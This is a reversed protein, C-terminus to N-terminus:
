TPPSIRDPARSTEVWQELVALADFHGPRPRRHLAAHGAGHVPPLLRVPRRATARRRRNYYNVSSLPSVGPDSWGHYQILKGGRAEFGSLRTPPM